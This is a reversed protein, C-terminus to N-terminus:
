LKVCSLQNESCESQYKTKEETHAKKALVAGFDGVPFLFLDLVGCAVFGMFFRL